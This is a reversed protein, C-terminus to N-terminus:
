KGVALGGRSTGLAFPMALEFTPCSRPSKLSQWHALCCTTQHAYSPQIHIHLAIITPSNACAVANSKSLVDHASKSMFLALAYRLSFAGEERPEEAASM